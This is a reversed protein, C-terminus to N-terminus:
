AENGAPGNGVSADDAYLQAMEVVGGFPLQIMLTTSITLGIRHHVAGVTRPDRGWVNQPNSPLSTSTQHTPDVYPHHVSSRPSPPPSQPLSEDFDAFRPARLESSPRAAPSHVEEPQTASRASHNHIVAAGPAKDNYPGRKLAPQPRQTSSNARVSGSSTQNSNHTPLTRTHESSGKQPEVIDAPRIATTRQGLLLLSQPFEESSHSWERMGRVPHVACSFKGEANKTTRDRQKEENAEPTIVDTAVNKRPRRRQTKIGTKRATAKPPSKQETTSTPVSTIAAESPQSATRESM